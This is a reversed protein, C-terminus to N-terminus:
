KVYKEIARKYDKFHKSKVFKEVEEEPLKELLDDTIKLIKKIHKFEKSHNKIKSEYEKFSSHKKDMIERLNDVVISDKYLKDVEKKLEKEKIQLTKEKLLIEKAKQALEEEPNKPALKFLKLRYIILGIIIILLIIAYFWVNTFIEIM